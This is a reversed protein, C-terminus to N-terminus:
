MFSPQAIAQFASKRIIKEENKNTAQEEAAGGSAGTSEELADLAASEELVVPAALEELAASEELADLEDLLVASFGSVATVELEL